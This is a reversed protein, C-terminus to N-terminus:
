KRKATTKPSAPADDVVTETEKSKRERTIKEVIVFRVSKFDDEIIVRASRDITAAADRVLSRALKAEKEDSTVVTHTNGNDLDKIVATLPNVRPKRGAGSTIATGTNPKLEMKTKWETDTFDPRVMGARWVTKGVITVTSLKRLQPPLTGVLRTYTRLQYPIGRTAMIKRMSYIRWGCATPHTLPVGAPFRLPKQEETKLPGHGTPACVSNVM